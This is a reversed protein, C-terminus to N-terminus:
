GKVLVVVATMLETVSYIVAGAAEVVSSNRVAHELPTSDASSHRILGTRFRRFRPVNVFLAREERTSIPGTASNVDAPHRKYGALTRLTLGM